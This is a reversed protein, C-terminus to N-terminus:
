ADAGKEIEIMGKEIAVYSDANRAKILDKISDWNDDFAHFSKRAKAFNGAKSQSARQMKETSSKRTHREIFAESGLYIQARLADWPRSNLGMRVFKRYHKTGTGREKVTLGQARSDIKKAV